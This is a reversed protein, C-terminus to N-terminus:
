EIGYFALIGALTGDAKMERLIEDYRRAIEPLGPYNSFRVFTNYYERNKIPKPLYSVRDQLGRRYIEYLAIKTNLPVLDFRKALLKDLQLENNPIEDVKLPIDRVAKLFEDSYSIGRTIGITWPALDRYDNFVYKGENEKLYFFNWNFSVHSERAYQLYRDREENFSYTFVMDYVAPVAKFNAELRASSSVLVVRYPVGLKKMVYDIIDVDLGRPIGKEDIWRNPEEPIGAIILDRANLSFAAAAFWLLALFRKM